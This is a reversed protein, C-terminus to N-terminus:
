LSKATVLVVRGGILTVIQYYSICVCFVNKLHKSIFCFCSSRLTVAIGGAMGVDEWQMM